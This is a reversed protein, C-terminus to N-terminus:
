RNDRLLLESVRIFGSEPDPSDRAVRGRAQTVFCVSITTLDPRPSCRRTGAAYHVETM